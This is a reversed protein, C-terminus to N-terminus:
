MVVQMTIYSTINPELASELIRGGERKRIPGAILEFHNRGRELLLPPQDRFNKSTLSLTEKTKYKYMLCRAKHITHLLHEIFTFPSFSETLSLWHPVPLSGQLFYLSRPPFPSQGPKGQPLIGHELGAPHLYRVRRGRASIRNLTKSYTPSDPNYSKYDGAELIKM